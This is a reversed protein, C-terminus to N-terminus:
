KSKNNSWEKEIKGAAGKTKNQLPSSSRTVGIEGLKGEKMKTFNM